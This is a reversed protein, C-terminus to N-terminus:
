AEVAPSRPKLYVDAYEADLCASTPSVFDRASSSACVPTVTFATHGPQTSVGMTARAASRMWFVVPRESSSDRRASDLMCGMPRKTRASSTASTHKKRAESCAAAMVPAVYPMSPPSSAHARPVLLQDLRQAPRPGPPIGVAHHRLP